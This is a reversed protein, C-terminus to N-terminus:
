EGEKAATDPKGSPASALRGKSLAAEIDEQEKEEEAEM